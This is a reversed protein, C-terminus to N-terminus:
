ALGRKEVNNRCEGTRDIPMDARTAFASVNSLHCLLGGGLSQCGQSASLKRAQKPRGLRVHLLCQGLEAPRISEADERAIEERTQGPARETIEEAALQRLVDPRVFSKSPDGIMAIEICCQVQM